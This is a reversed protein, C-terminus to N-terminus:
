AWFCFCCLPSLLGVGDGRRDRRHRRRLLLRLVKFRRPRARDPPRPTIWLARVRALAALPPLRSELAGAVHDFTSSLEREEEDDNDNEDEDEDEFCFFSSSALSDIRAGSNDGKIFVQGASCNFVNM